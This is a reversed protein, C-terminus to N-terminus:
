YMYVNVFAHYPVQIFPFIRLVAKAHHLQLTFTLVRWSYTTSPNHPSRRGNNNTRQSPLCQIINMLSPLCQPSPKLTSLSPLCRIILNILSPLCQPAHTCNITSLSPLCQYAEDIFTFMSLFTQHHTCCCSM